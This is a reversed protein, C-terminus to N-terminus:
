ATSETGCDGGPRSALTSATATRRRRPRPPDLVVGCERALADLFATRVARPRTIRFRTRVLAATLCACADIRKQEVVNGKLWKGFDQGGDDPFARRLLEAWVRDVYHIKQAQRLIARAQARDLIGARRARCLTARVDVLPVSHPKWGHEATAHVLAVEDDATLSGRAFARFIAGIGIMGFPAMEVARLAGISSAGFVRIGRSLLYLIEKHRVAPRHDFWGDILCITPPPDAVLRLLDGAQAPPRWDVQPFEARDSSTLSPGAFAVLKM